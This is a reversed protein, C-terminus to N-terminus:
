PLLEHSWFEIGTFRVTLGIDKIVVWYQRLMMGLVLSMIKGGGVLETGREPKGTDMVTIM